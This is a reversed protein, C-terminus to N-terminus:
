KTANEVRYRATEGQACGALFKFISVTVVTPLRLEVSINGTAIIDALINIVIVIAIGYHILLSGFSSHPKEHAGWLRQRCSTPVPLEVDPNETM